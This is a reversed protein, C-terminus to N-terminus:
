SIFTIEPYDSKKMFISGNVAPIIFLDEKRFMLYGFLYQEAEEETKFPGSLKKMKSSDGEVTAWQKKGDSFSGEVVWWDESTSPQTFYKDFLYGKKM